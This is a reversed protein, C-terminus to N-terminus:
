ADIRRRRFRARVLEVVGNAIFGVGLFALVAQGYVVYRIDRFTGALGRAQGPDHHVAALLLFMGLVGFTVARAALGVRALAAVLRRALRSMAAPDLSRDVEGSWARYIM